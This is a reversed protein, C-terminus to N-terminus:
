TKASNILLLFQFVSGDSGNKSFGFSSGSGDSGNEPVSVPVTGRQKFIYQLLFDRFESVGQLQLQLGRFLKFITIEHTYHNSFSPLEFAIKHPLKSVVGSAFSHGHIKPSM